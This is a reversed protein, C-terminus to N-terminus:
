IHLISAFLALRFNAVPLSCARYENYKQRSLNAGIVCVRLVICMICAHLFKLGFNALTALQCRIFM